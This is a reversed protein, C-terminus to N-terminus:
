AGPQKDAYNFYVAPDNFRIIPPPNARMVLSDVIQKDIENRLELAGVDAFKKLMSDSWLAPKPAQVQVPSAATNLAAQPQSPACVERRAWIRLQNRLYIQDFLPLIRRCALGSAHVDGGLYDGRAMLRHVLRFRGVLEFSGFDRHLIADPEDKRPNTMFFNDPKMLLDKLVQRGFPSLFEHLRRM